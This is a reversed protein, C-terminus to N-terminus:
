LYGEQLVKRKGESLIVAWARQGQTQHMFEGVLHFGKRSFDKVRNEILELRAEM